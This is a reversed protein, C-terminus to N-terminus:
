LKDIFEILFPPWTRYKSVVPPNLGSRISPFEFVIQLICILKRSCIVTELIVFVKSCIFDMFFNQFCHNKKLQLQYHLQNIKKHTYFSSLDIKSFFENNIFYM